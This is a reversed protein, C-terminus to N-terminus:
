KEQKTQKFEFAKAAIEAKHKLWEEERKKM